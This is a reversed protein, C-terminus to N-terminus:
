KFCESEQNELSEEGIYKPSVQAPFLCGKKDKFIPAEEDCVISCASGEVKAVGHNETFIQMSYWFQGKWLEYKRTEENYYKGNFANNKLDDYNIFQRNFISRKISDVDSNFITFYLITGNQVLSTDCIPYFYDNIGDENPTFVNPIFVRIGPAIERNVEDISSCCPEYKESKIITTTDDKDDQATCSITYVLVFVTSFLAILSKNM